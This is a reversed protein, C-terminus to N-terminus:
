VVGFIDTTGCLVAYHRKGDQGVVFMGWPVSIDFVVRTGPKLGPPTPHYRGKVDTFGPGIALITGIGSHYKKKCQVPIYILQQDGLKEPTPDPFIFVLDRLPRLPFVIEGKTGHWPTKHNQM